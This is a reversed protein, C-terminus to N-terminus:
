YGLWFHTFLCVLSIMGIIQPSLSLLFKNIRSLSLFNEPSNSIPYAQCEACDPLFISIDQCRNKLHKGILCLAVLGYPDVFKVKQLNIEVASLNDPSLINIKEFLNDISPANLSEDDVIIKEVNEM